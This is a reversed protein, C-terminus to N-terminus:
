DAEPEEGQLLGGLNVVRLNGRSNGEDGGNEDEQGHKPPDAVLTQGPDREPTHASATWESCGVSYECNTACTSPNQCGGPNFGFL